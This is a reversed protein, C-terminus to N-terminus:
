EYVMVLRRLAKSAAVYPTANPALTMASNEHLFYLTKGHRIDHQQFVVKFNGMRTGTLKLPTKDRRPSPTETNTPEMAKIQPVRSRPSPPKRSLLVESNWTRVIPSHTKSNYPAM